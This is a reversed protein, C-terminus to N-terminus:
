ASSPVREVICTTMLSAPPAVIVVALTLAVTASAARVAVVLGSEATSPAATAFLVTM